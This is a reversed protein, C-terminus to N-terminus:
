NIIQKLMEWNMHDDDYRIGRDDIYVDAYIKPNPHFNTTVNDNIKDYPVNNDNLFKEMPALTEDTSRCTWIIIHHGRRKWRKITEIANPKPTGVDPFANEVITGDFDIAIIM